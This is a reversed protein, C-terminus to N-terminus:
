LDFHDAVWCMDRLVHRKRESRAWIAGWPVEVRKPGRHDHPAGSDGSPGAPRPPDNIVCCSVHM